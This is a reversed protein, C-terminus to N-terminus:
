LAGPGGIHHPEKRNESVGQSALATPAPATWVQSMVHYQELKTETAIISRKSAGNLESWKQVMWITCFRVFFLFDKFFITSLCFFKKTGNQVM